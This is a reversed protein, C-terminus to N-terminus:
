GGSRNPYHMGCARRGYRIDAVIIYCDDGIIKEYDTRGRNKRVVSSQKRAYVYLKTMTRKLNLM